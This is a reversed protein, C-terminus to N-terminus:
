GKRELITEKLHKVKARIADRKIQSPNDHFKVPKNKLDLKKDSAWKNYAEKLFGEGIDMIEDDSTEPEVYIFHNHFPNNQWKKPLSEIWTDYADIDAPIGMEDVEGLYGEPPIVPVQIHHEDYRADDLELYFSFRIQVLGKREVVGTPEIKAIM